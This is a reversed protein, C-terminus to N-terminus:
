NIVHFRLFNCYLNMKVGSFGDYIWFNENRWDAFAAACFSIHVVVFFSTRSIFGIFIKTKSVFPRSTFSRVFHTTEWEWESQGITTPLRDISCEARQGNVNLPLLKFVSGPSEFSDIKTDFGICNLTHQISKSPRWKTARVFNSSQLHWVCANRWRFGM